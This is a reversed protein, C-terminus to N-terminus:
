ISVKFAITCVCIISFAWTEWIRCNDHFVDFFEVFENQGITFQLQMLFCLLQFYWFALTNVMKCSYKDILFSHEFHTSRKSVTLWFCCHMSLESCQKCSNWCLLFLTKTYIHSLPHFMSGGSWEPTLDATLQTSLQLHFGNLTVSSAFMLLCHKPRRIKPHMLYKTWWNGQSLFFCWIRINYLMIPSNSPLFRM